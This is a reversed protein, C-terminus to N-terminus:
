IKSINKNIIDLFELSTTVIKDKVELKIKINLEQSLKHVIHLGIGLGRNGEKYFRDFVKSPNKIGYSDNIIILRKDKLIIKIFGNTTNYRCANNLLNFIIREIADYNSEIRVDKNLSINWDIYDYISNFFDSQKTIIEKISIEEKLLIPSNCYNDLNKHLSALINVSQQIVKIEQTPNPIMKLNIIISSIPTNLDHIIDRMFEQLIFLSKRLPNLSYFSFSIAIIINIFSLLIFKFILLNYISELKIFYNNKSYIIKMFSLSDIPLPTLIYLENNNFYLEYIKKNNKNVIDVSYNNINDDLTISYNKMKLFIEKELHSKEILAYNYFIFSM